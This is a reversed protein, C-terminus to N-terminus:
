NKTLDIRPRDLPDPGYKNDGPASKKCALGYLVLRGIAALFFFVGATGPSGSFLFLFSAAVPLVFILIWWASLNIDHLRRATVALDPPVLALSLLAYFWAFVIGTEEWMDLYYLTVFFLYSFLEFYWYEARSARGAFSFYKKTLCIKVAESFTM